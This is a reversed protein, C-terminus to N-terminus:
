RLDPVSEMRGPRRARTHFNVALAAAEVLDAHPSAGTLVVLREVVGHEPLVEDNLQLTDDGRGPGRGAPETTLTLLAVTVMVSARLTIARGLTRTAM